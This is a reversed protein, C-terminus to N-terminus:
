VLLILALIAIAILVPFLAVATLKSIKYIVTMVRRLSESGLTTVDMQNVLTGVECPELDALAEKCALGVESVLRSRPIAAGIPYYGLPASVIGNVMHTDTTLVEGDIFGLAKTESIIEERLDKVMNNGDISIYAFTEGAVEIAIAAIGGPGLGDRIPMPPHRQAVGVKFPSKAKKLSAHLSSLAAQELANVKESSMTTPGTLCNHADIIAVHRLKDRTANHIREAVEFPVDEMDLPATTMTVLACGNFVQSTATAIDNTVRTVPTANQDFETALRNLVWRIIRENQEQSVLNREHGSVGHPVIAVAKLRRKAVDQFLYPFVSSGINLFPGPHLNSVLVIGKINQSNKKRFLLTAVELKTKVGLENLYSELGHYDADLWDALFARFMRIPSFGIRRRGYDEVFAILAFAFTLGALSSILLAITFKEFPLSLFSIGFIISLVPEVLSFMLRKAFRTRSM